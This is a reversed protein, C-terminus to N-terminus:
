PTFGFQRRVVDLIQDIKQDGHHHDLAHRHRAVLQDAGGQDFRANAQAVVAQPAIVDHPGYFVIHRPDIDRVPALHRLADPVIPIGGSVLADFIRIPVDNLVPVIWHAKHATWEALREAPTRVHFSRDSFGVSPFHQGLTTVARNRFAFPAYPIHMGLPLDSREAQLMQSLQQALFPRPWQVSGCYVPGAINANYRSLLYLHEHHAPAYVDSHTALLTSLDLWHHNDWDWAAFVTHECRSFLDAFAPGGNDLGVDNNNVIVVADRLHSVCADRIAVDAPQFYGKPLFEVTCGPRQHAFGSLNASILLREIRRGGFHAQLQRVRLQKAAALHFLADSQAHAMLETSHRAPLGRDPLGLFRESIQVSASLSPRTM